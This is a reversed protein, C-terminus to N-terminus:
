CHNASYKVLVMRVGYETYVPVVLCDISARTPDFRWISRYKGSNGTLREVACPVTLSAKTGDHESTIMATCPFAGGVCPLQSAPCFTQINPVVKGNIRRLASGGPLADNWSCVPKEVMMKYADNMLFVRNYYDSVIAPRTDREVEVEVEKATKMSEAVVLKGGVINTSDICITTCLPHMPRPAFVQPVKLSSLLDHEKHVVRTPADPASLHYPPLIYYDEKRCCKDGSSSAMSGVALSPPLPPALMWTPKPTIPWLRAMTEDTKNTAEM